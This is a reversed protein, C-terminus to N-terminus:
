EIGTLGFCPFTCELSYLNKKLSLLDGDTPLEVMWRVGTTQPESRISYGCNSESTGSVCYDKVLPKRKAFSVFDKPSTTTCRVCLKTFASKIPEHKRLQLSVDTGPDIVRYSGKGLDCTLRYLVPTTKLHKWYFTFM